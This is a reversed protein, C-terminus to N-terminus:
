HAARRLRIAAHLMQTRWGAHARHRVAVPLATAADQVALAVYWGDALRASLFQWDDNQQADPLRYSNAELDFEAHRLVAWLPMGAAKCFAEKLTWYRYFTELRRRGQARLIYASETATFIEGVHKVLGRPRVFEVDVGTRVSALTLAVLGHSHSLNLHLPADDYVLGNEPSSHLAATNVRGLTAALAECALVRGALWERRRTDCGLTHYRQQESIALRSLWPEAPPPIYAASCGAVFLEATNPM